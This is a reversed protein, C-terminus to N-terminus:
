DKPHCMMHCAMGAVVLALLGGVSGGVIAGIAKGSLYVGDGNDNAGAVFRGGGGGRLMRRPLPGTGLHDDSVALDTLLMLAGAAATYILPKPNEKLSKATDVVQAKGNQLAKGMRNAWSPRHNQITSASPPHASEQPDQPTADENVHIAVEPVPPIHPLSLANNIHM